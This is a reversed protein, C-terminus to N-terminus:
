RKLNQLKVLEKALNVKSKRYEAFSQKRRDMEHEMAVKRREIAANIKDEWEIFDSLLVVRDREINLMGNGHAFLTESGDEHVMKAMDVTLNMLMPLHGPFIDVARGDDGDSQTVRLYAVDGEFFLKDPRRMVLHLTKM